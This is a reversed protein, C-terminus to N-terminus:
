GPAAPREACVLLALGGFRALFDLRRAIPVVANFLRAANVSLTKSRLVEGLAGLRPHRAPQLLAAGRHPVRRRHPARPPHRPQLPPLARVGRRPQRLPGPLEAGAARPPRRAAPSRPLGGAGGRRGRSARACQPLRDHRGAAGDRVPLPDPRPAPLRREAPRRLAGAPAGSLRPPSLSSRIAARDVLFRSVVGVGSGVRHALPSIRPSSTTRGSTTAGWQATSCSCSM